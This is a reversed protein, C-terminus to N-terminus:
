SSEEIIENEIDSNVNIEQENDENRIEVTKM